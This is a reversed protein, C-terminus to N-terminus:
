AVLQALLEADLETGEPADAEAREVRAEFPERRIARELDLLGAEGGPLLVHVAQCGAALPQELLQELRGLHVIELLVPEGQSEGEEAVQARLGAQVLRISV